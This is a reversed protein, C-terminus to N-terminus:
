IKGCNIVGRVGGEDGRPQPDSVMLRTSVLYMLDVNNLYYTSIMANLINFFYLIDCMVQFTPLAARENRHELGEHQPLDHHFVATPFDELCRFLLPLGDILLELGEQIISNSATAKTLPESPFFKLRSSM